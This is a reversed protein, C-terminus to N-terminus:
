TAPDRSYRVRALRGAASGAGSTAVAMVLTLGFMVIPLMIGPWRAVDRDYACDPCDVAYAVVPVLYAVYAALLLAPMAVLGLLRGSLLFSISFIAALSAGVIAEVAPEALETAVFGAYLGAGALACAVGGTWTWVNM